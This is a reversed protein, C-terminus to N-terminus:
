FTFLMQGAKRGDKARLGRIKEPSPIRTRYRTIEFGSSLLVILSGNATKNVFYALGRLVRKLDRRAENKVAADYPSKRARARALYKMFNSRVLDLEEISPSPDVF